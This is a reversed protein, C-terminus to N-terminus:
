SVIKDKKLLIIIIKNKQERDKISNVKLMLLIIEKLIRLNYYKKNM